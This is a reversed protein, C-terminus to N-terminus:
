AELVVVIGVRAVYCCYYLVVIAGFQSRANATTGRTAAKKERM